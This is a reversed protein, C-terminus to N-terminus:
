EYGTAAVLLTALLRWDPQAPIPEGRNAFYGDLDHLFSGFAPLFRALTANEWEASGSGEFDTIIEGMIRLLDERSTVASLNSVHASRGTRYPSPPEVLRFADAPENPARNRGLKVYVPGSSTDLRWAEQQDLENEAFRQLLQVLHGWEEASLEASMAEM